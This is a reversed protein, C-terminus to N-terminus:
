SEEPDTLNEIFDDSIQGTFDLLLFGRESEPAVYVLEVTKGKVKRVWLCDGFNKDDTGSYPSYRKKNSNLLSLADKRLEPADSDAYTIIRISKMGDMWEKLRDDSDPRQAMLANLMKPGVTVCKVGDNGAVTKMFHAAFDETSNKQAQVCVAMMACAALILLRKM